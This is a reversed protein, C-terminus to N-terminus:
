EAGGSDWAMIQLIRQCGHQWFQKISERLLGRKINSIVSGFELRLRFNEMRHKKKWYQIGGAKKEKKEKKRKKLFFEPNELACEKAWVEQRLNKGPECSVTGDAWFESLFVVWSGTGLLAEGDDTVSSNM